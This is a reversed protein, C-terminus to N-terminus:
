PPTPSWPGPWPWGSSSAEPCSAPDTSSGTPWGWGTWPPWPGSRRRDQRDVGAYVLPLEVNRWASLSALLNFQQFVFGIRRNRVHALEEESMASVDEGALRFRGSTPVDLCGLIHMLTSKGSGSPGMIAVYEGADIDFSVGRLAEVELTGTAYTKRSTACRSSRRSTAVAPHRGTDDLWVEATDDLPASPSTRAPRERCQDDASDGAAAVASGVAAASAVAARRRVRRRRDSRLSGLPRQGHAGGHFTVETVYIKDGVSLGSTVQTDGGSAAGITVTRTSRRARRLRPDGHHRERQVPHGDHAGGRRGPLEETIISVTAELRRLRRDPQRDRRHGGPVHGRGLIHTALLGISGVTGYIPTTSGSVTITAQDGM